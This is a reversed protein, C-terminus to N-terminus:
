HNIGWKGCNYFCVLRKNNFRFKIPYEGGESTKYIYEAGAHEWCQSDLGDEICGKVPKELVNSFIGGDGNLEIMKDGDGNLLNMQREMGVYANVFTVVSNVTQSEKAKDASSKLAKEVGELADNAKKNLKYSEYQNMGFLVLIVVVFAIGINKM